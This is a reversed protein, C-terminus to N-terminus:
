EIKDVEVNAVSSGELTLATAAWQPSFSEFEVFTAAGSTENLGFFDHVFTNQHTHPRMTVTKTGLVAGASSLLAANLVATTDGTNMLAFALDRTYAFGSQTILIDGTQVPSVVSTRPIVFRQMDPASPALGIRSLLNGTGSDRLDIRSNVTIRGTANILGWGMLAPTPTTGLAATTAIVLMTSGPVNIAPLSGNFTIGTNPPSVTATMPAGFASGDENFFNGSVAVASNGSNVVQIITSYNVNGSTGVAVEPIAKSFSGPPRTVPPTTGGTQGYVIFDGTLGKEWEIIRQVFLTGLLAVMLIAAFITSVKSFRKVDVEVPALNCVSARNAIFYENAVSRVTRPSNRSSGSLDM